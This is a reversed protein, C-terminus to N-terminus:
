EASTDVLDLNQQQRAAVLQKFEAVIKAHHVKDSEFKYDSAVLQQGSQKFQFPPKYPEGVKIEPKLKSLPENHKKDQETECGIIQLEVKKDNILSHVKGTPICTLLRHHLDKKTMSVLATNIAIETSRIKNLLKCFAAARETNEIMKSAQVCVQMFLPLTVIVVKETDDKLATEHLNFFYNNYTEKIGSRLYVDDDPSGDNKPGTGWFYPTGDERDSAPSFPPKKEMATATSMLLLAPAVFLSIYKKM